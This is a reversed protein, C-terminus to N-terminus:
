FQFYIFQQADFNAGYKGFIIIAFILAFIAGWRFWLNQNELFADIKKNKLYRLLDVFLLVALGVVLINMEIRDLGLTYLTGDSLAWLDIKLFMRKIYYCGDNITSSRFFIWAFTTLLFTIVVSGLRYSFCQTNMHVTVRKKLPSLVDGIVQYLGHIGGWAVYTWNAGHWLGSVLFTIMLNLYKRAKSCRSGGLPIYLYNRLWLSLSIHWRRWFEKISKSFYPTNFNDTISFGLVQAAGLAVTSYSMFDCYIQISYVVAAVFLEVSYYSMYSDFVTNVLIASRDAIVMKVFFGWLMLVLGNAVRRYDWGRIKEINNIQELFDKSPEIPGSLLKPFFSILLTLKLFNKEAPIENRYVDILYGLSQFTYFSIGITMIFEASLGINEFGFKQFLLNLNGILFQAYKFFVLLGINILCCLTIVIKKIRVKSSISDYNLLRGGFYTLVTSFTLLIAYKPNWIMYYYYSLLVLWFCRLKKPIVLFTIVAILFFGIFSLSNFLM